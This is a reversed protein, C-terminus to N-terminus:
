ASRDLPLRITFITGKGPESDVSINGKHDQVIQYCISLGLGTGIGVGKTTFGPDFIRKVHEPDIGAGSDSIRIYVDDNRAFTEISITGDGVIAQRANNFLNLFVQNLRGPYCSLPPVKGFRREVNIRNKIEHHILSLTDELCEHIDVVKREAEDLRAFSRLRRVITTVRETGNRIVQNAEDIVKLSPLLRAAIGCDAQCDEDITNQLRKVARVLTDHMSRVAGVPTNIEHAIGAVLMGLSAMKESQVLQSQAERLERNIRELDDLATKLDTIDHAVGVEEILGGTDDWIESSHITLWRWSGDRHRFRMADGGPQEQPPVGSEVWKCCRDYDDPHVFELITKGLFDSEAYGTLETVKPSIYSFTGEADVSYIIERANEVLSRFRQESYRLARLDRERQLYIGIMESVTRLTRVDNDNWIRESETDGFGVFGYWDAGTFVPVVLLSRLGGESLRSWEEPSADKETRQIIEGQSLTEQWSKFVPHYPIFEREVGLDAPREFRHAHHKMVAGFRGQDDTENAFLYVVGVGTADVLNQLVEPLPDAADSETLLARSCTALGEEYKLRTGLAEQAQRRESIEERMAVNMRALQATRQEVRRELEVHAKQLEDEARKRETIDRVITLVDNTGTPLIRAEFFHEKGEHEMSYEITQMGGQDLTEGIKELVFAVMDPPLTDHVTKGVIEETPVALPSDPPAHYELYKGSRDMRFMLDPILDLLTRIRTEREKLQEIVEALEVTRQQVRLELEDHAKLLQEEAEKRATIDRGMGVTYRVRGESDKIRFVSMDIYIDESGSQHLKQESRHFGQKDLDREIQDLKDPLLQERIVDRVDEDPGPIQERHSPNRDVLNEKGDLVIIGDSASEFIRRYLLLREEARKRETIDYLAGVIVKDGALDTIVLSFIAWTVSGDKRQLEIELGRVFGKSMLEDVVRRRDERHRYFDPTEQGILEQATLGVLSALHENAFLIRGDNVRSVILPMPASEVILRLQEDAQKLKTVDSFAWLCGLPEGEKDVVSVAMMALHRRISGATEFASEYLRRVDDDFKDSAAPHNRLYEAHRRFSVPDVLCNSMVDIVRDLSSGILEEPSLDFFTKMRRNAAVVRREQDVMFTAASATDLMAQFINRSDSLEKLLKQSELNREDLTERAHRLEANTEELQGAKAQLDRNAKQLSETRDIVKQELLRYSRINDLASSVIQAFTEVRAIDHEDMLRDHDQLNAVLVGIPQGHSRVPTLVLAKTKIVREPRKPWRPDENLDPIHITRGQLLCEMLHPPQEFAPNQVNRKFNEILEPPDKLFCLSRLVLNEGAALFLAARDFDLSRALLDPLINLLEDESEFGLLLRSAENLSSLQRNAYELRETREEVMTELRRSYNRLQQRSKSHEIAQLLTMEIVDVQLPKLVFHYAGRLIARRAEASAGAITVLVIPVSPKEAKLKKLTELGSMRPLHLDCLVVDFSENKFRQLGEKGDGATVVSFSRASLEAALDERESRDDEIYLVRPTKQNSTEKM